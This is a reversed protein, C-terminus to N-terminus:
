LLEKTKAEEIRDILEEHERERKEAVVTEWGKQEDLTHVDQGGNRELIQQAIKRKELEESRVSLLIGGAHMYDGYRKGAPVPTGNGILVGAAAGVVAGLFLSGVVLSTTTLGNHSLEATTYFNTTIFVALACVFLAGLIGGILAGNKTQTKFATAFNEEGKRDPYMINIESDKFGNSRLSRVANMIENTNHFISFTAPHTDM